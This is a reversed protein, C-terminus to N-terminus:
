QSPWELAAEQVTSAPSPPPSRQPQLQSAAVTPEAHLKPDSKRVLQAEPRGCHGRHHRPRWQQWGRWWRAVVAVISQPRQLTTFPPIQKKKRYNSSCKKQSYKSAFDMKYLLLSILSLFDSFKVNADKVRIRTNTYIESSQNWCSCSKSLQSKNFCQIPETTIHDVIIITVCSSM